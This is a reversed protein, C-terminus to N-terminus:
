LLRERTLTTGGSHAVDHVGMDSAKRGDVIPGANGELSCLQIYSLLM